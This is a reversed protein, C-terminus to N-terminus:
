IAAAFASRAARCILALVIMVAEKGADHKSGAFDAGLITSGIQIVEPEASGCLRSSGYGHM